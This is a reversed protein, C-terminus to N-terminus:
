ENRPSTMNHTTKKKGNPFFFCIWFAFKIPDLKEKQTNRRKGNDLFTLPQQAPLYEETVLLFSDDM